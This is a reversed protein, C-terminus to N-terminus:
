IKYPCDSSHHKSIVKIGYYKEFRAQVAPKYARILLNRLIKRFSRLENQIEASKDHNFEVITHMAM